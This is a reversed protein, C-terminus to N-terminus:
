HFSNKTEFIEAFRGHFRKFIALIEPDFHEPMTRGDGECIIRLVEDHTFARKYPRESRLADYQDCLMVIRASLPINDGALHNPYGSGDWCEHHGSAIETGMTLFPSTSNAILSAGVEPHKRVTVLEEPTLPGPKCLVHGPVCIKGIDHMASAYFMTECYGAAMGLMEAMGQSLHSLRSIHSYTEHDKFEVVRALAFIAEIYSGRLEATKRRVQRDLLKNMNSLFDGYEKLRLLNRVRIALEAPDIPKTLFDEAGIELGRLRSERDGLVTVMVVPIHTTQPNAKLRRATEFGDIGPMVLDLVVLDPWGTAAIELAEAGSQVPRAEYGNKELLAAIFTSISKEDDVVLVRGTLRNLSSTMDTGTPNDERAM